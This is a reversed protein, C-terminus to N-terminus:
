RVSNFASPWQGLHAKAASTPGSPRQQITVHGGSSFVTIEEGSAKTTINGVSTVISGGSANVNAPASEKASREKKEFILGM